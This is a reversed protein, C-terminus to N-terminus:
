GKLGYLSVRTVAVLNSSTGSFLTLSTISATNLFVGSAIGLENGGDPGGGFTRVTTNKSTSFADLIDAVGAGFANATASSGTNSMLLISSTSTGAFSIVSSGTGNLGHLAYNNGTDGNIRARMGALGNLSGNVVLALDRYTAPISSFTIASTSSDLTVTALPTYAPTPM